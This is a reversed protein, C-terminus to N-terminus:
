RRRPGSRSPGKRLPARWSPRCALPSDPDIVCDGGATSYDVGIVGGREDTHLAFTEALGADALCRAPLYAMTYEGDVPHLVNSHVRVRYASDAAVLRTLNKPSLKEDTSRADAAPALTSRLRRRPATHARASSGARRLSDAASADGPGVM